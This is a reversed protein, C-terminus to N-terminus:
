KKDLEINFEKSTEGAYWDGDGNTFEANKFEVLTDLNHFDGNTAGDIDTFEIDIKQDGPYGYEEVVKYNGNNDTFSTDGRMIVRINKIATNDAANSVNGNVIFKASPVGYEAVPDPGLKECSTTLGLLGMLGLIITNYVSYFKIKAKKMATLTLTHQLLLTKKCYFHDIIM